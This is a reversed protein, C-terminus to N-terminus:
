MIYPAIWKVYCVINISRMLKGFRNKFSQIKFRNLIKFCKRINNIVPLPISRLYFTLM